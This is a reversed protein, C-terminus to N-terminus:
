SAKKKRKTDVESSEIELGVTVDDDSVTMEATVEDDAASMRDCKRWGRPLLTGRRGRGYYGLFAIEM